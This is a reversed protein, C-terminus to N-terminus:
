LTRDTQAKGIPNDSTYTAQFGRGSVSGDTMFYVKMGNNTSQFTGPNTHGCLATM